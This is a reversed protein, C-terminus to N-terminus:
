SPTLNLQIEKQVLFVRDKLCFIVLNRNQEQTSAKFAITPSQRRLYMLWKKVNEKPVLDIKNLLLVLRKGANLVSEEVNRNRSGLPDRADLVQFCIDIKWSGYNEYIIKHYKGFNFILRNAWEFVNVKLPEM